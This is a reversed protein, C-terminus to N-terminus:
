SKAFHIYAFTSKGDSNTITVIESDSITVFEKGNHYEIKTKSESVRLIEEKSFSWNFSVKQIHELAQSETEFTYLTATQNGARIITSGAKDTKLKKQYQYASYAETFNGLMWFGFIGGIIWYFM